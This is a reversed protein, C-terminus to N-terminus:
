RCRHDPTAIYGHAIGNADVFEGGFQGHDNVVAVTSVYFAGPVDVVTYAGNQFLYGHGIFDADYYFGSAVGANNLGFTQTSISGPPHITTFSGRRYIFGHLSPFPAEATAAVGYTGVLDGRNNIRIVSTGGFFGPDASADPHNFEHYGSRDLIFGHGVQGADAFTGVVTGRDNMGSSATSLGTGFEFEVDFAPVAGPADLRTYVPRRSFIGSCLFGRQVGQSDLYVGVIQDQNNITLPWTQTAGPFDFRVPAVRGKKSAFGQSMAFGHSHGAADDYIGVVAGANNLGIVASLSHAGPIDITTYTQASVASMGLFAIGILSFKL